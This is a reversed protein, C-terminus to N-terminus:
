VYGAGCTDVHLCNSTKQMVQTSDKTTKSNTGVGRGARGGGLLVIIGHGLIKHILSLDWIFQVGCTIGFYSVKVKTGLCVDKM